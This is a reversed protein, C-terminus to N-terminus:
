LFMLAFLAFMLITITIMRDVLRQAAQVLPMVNFGLSIVALTSILNLLRMENALTLLCLTTVASVSFFKCRILVSVTFLYIHLCGFLLLSNM